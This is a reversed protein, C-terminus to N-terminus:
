PIPDGRDALVMESVTPGDGILKIRPNMGKPKGGSWRVLGRAQLDRIRRTLEDDGAEPPSIVAVPKGRRTVTIMEGRELRRLHASLHSKLDRISVEIM